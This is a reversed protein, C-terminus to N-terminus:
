GCAAISILAVLMPTAPKTACVGDNEDDDDDDAAGGGGSLSLSTSMSEM